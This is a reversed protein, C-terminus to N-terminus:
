RRSAPNLWPAWAGSGTRVQIEFSLRHNTGPIAPIDPGLNGDWAMSIDRGDADIQVFQSGPARVLKVADAFAHNGHHSFPSNVRVFVTLTSTQATTAAVLNTWRIETHPRRDEIWEVTDALPDTGGTADLGAMKAIYAGAPCDNPNGSGGCLSTMWASLSYEVGQTVTVPQSLAVDFPPADFDQGFPAYTAMFINSDYGELKEWGMDDPNCGGITAWL